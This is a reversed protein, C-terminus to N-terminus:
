IKSIQRDAKEHAVAETLLVELSEQLAAQVSQHIHTTLQAIVPPLSEALSDRICQEIATDARTLLQQLIQARLTTAIRDVLDADVPDPAGQAVTDQRPDSRTVPATSSPRPNVRREPADIGYVPAQIVETLIPIGTEAGHQSM